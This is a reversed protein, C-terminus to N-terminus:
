VELVRTLNGVTLIQDALESFAFKTPVCERVSVYIPLLTPKSNPYDSLKIEVYLRVIVINTYAPNQDLQFTFKDGNDGVAPLFNVIKFWDESFDSYSSTLITYSLPGCITYAGYGFGLGVDNSPGTYVPSTV